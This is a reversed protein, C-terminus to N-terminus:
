RSGSREGTTEWGMGDGMLWVIFWGFMAIRGIVRKSLWHESNDWSFSVLLHRGQNRHFSRSHKATSSVRGRGRGRRRSSRHIGRRICRRTFGFLCIHRHLRIICILPLFSTIFPTRVFWESNVIESPQIIGTIKFREIRQKLWNNTSFLLEFM